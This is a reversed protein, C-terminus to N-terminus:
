PCSQQGIISELRTVHSRWTEDRQRLQEIGDATLAVRAAPDSTSVYSVAPLAPRRPAVCPQGCASVALVAVGMPLAAALQIRRRTTVPTRYRRHGAFAIPACRTPVDTSVDTSLNPM